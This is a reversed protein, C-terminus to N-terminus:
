FDLPVEADFQHLAVEVLFVEFANVGQCRDYLGFNRFCLGSKQMGTHVGRKSWAFYFLPEPCNRRYPARNTLRQEIPRPYLEFDNAYSHKAAFTDIRDVVRHRAFLSASTRAGNEYCLPV